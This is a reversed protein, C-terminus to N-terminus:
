WGVTVDVPGNIWSVRTVGKIRPIPEGCTPGYAGACEERNNPLEKIPVITYQSQMDLGDVGPALQRPPLPGLLPWPGLCRRSGRGRGEIRRRQGRRCQRQRDTRYESRASHGPL